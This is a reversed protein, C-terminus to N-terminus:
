THKGFWGSVVGWLATVLSMLIAGATRMELKFNKLERLTPRIEQQHLVDHKEHLKMHEANYEKLGERVTERLLLTFHEQDQDSDFLAM